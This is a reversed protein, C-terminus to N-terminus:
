NSLTSFYTDNWYDAIFSAEAEVISTNQSWDFTWGTVGKMQCNVFDVRRIVEGTRDHLQATIQGLMDSKYHLEGTQSNWALDYWRKLLAWVDVSKKDTENINFKISFEVHTERPTTAYTRTSYKFKQAVPQNAFKGGTLDLNISSANELLVKRNETSNTQVITPLDITIEFLNTYVPEWISNATTINRFHPLAM